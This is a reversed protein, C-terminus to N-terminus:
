QVTVTWKITAGNDAAARKAEAKTIGRKSSALFEQSAGVDMYFTSLTGGPLDHIGTIRILIAADKAWVKIARCASGHTSATTGPTKTTDAQFLTEWDNGTFTFYESAARGATIAM